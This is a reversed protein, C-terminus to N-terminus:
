QPKLYLIATRWIMTDQDSEDKLCICEGDQWIVRGQLTEGSIVKIQVSGKEHIIKQIRRTSPQGANFESM